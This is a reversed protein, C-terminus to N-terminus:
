EESGGIFAAVSKGDLVVTLIPLVKSSADKNMPWKQRYKKKQDAQAKAFEVIGEL